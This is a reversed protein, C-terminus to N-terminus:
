AKKAARKAAPKKTEEKEEAPTEGIPEITEAVEAPIETNPRYFKGNYKVSYPYKM